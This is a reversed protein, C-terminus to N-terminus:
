RECLIDSYKENFQKACRISEHENQSYSSALLKTDDTLKINLAQETTVLPEGHKTVRNEFTRSRQAAYASIGESSNM